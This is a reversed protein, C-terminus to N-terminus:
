ALKRELGLEDVMRDAQMGIALQRRGESGLERMLWDWYINDEHAKRRRDRIRWRKASKKLCKRV